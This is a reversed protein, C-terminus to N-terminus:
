LSKLFITEQQLGHLNQPQRNCFQDVIVVTIDCLLVDWFEITFVILM